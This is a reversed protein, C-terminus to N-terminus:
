QCMGGKTRAIKLRKVVETQGKDSALILAYDIFESPEWKATTLLKSAIEDKGKKIAYNFAPLRTNDTIKHSDLLARLITLDEGDVAYYLATAGERNRINVRINPQQLLLKVLNEQQSQCAKILATNGKEDVVNCDAGQELLFMVEEVFAEHNASVYFVGTKGQIYGRGAHYRSIVSALTDHIFVDKQAATMGQLFADSMQEQKSQNKEKNIGLFAEAMAEKRRQISDPDSIEKANQQLLAQVLLTIMAPSNIRLALNLPTDECLVDINIHPHQLLAQVISLNNLCMARTLATNYGRNVEIHPQQLLLKVLEEQQYDCARMLATEDCGTSTNCDAGHQLLLPVLVEFEEPSFHSITYFLAENVWIKKEQTTMKHLFANVMDDAMDDKKRWLMYLFVPVHTRDISSQSLLAKVTMVDDYEIALCLASTAQQKILHRDLQPHHLLKKVLPWCLTQIAYTLVNDGQKTMVNYNAGKEFLLNVLKDLREKNVSRGLEGGKKLLYLLATEGKENIQELDCGRTFLLQLLAGYEEHIAQDNTFFTECIFSEMVLFLLSPQQNLSPCGCGVPYYDGAEMYPVNAILPSQLLFFEYAPSNEKIPFYKAVYAPSNEKIPFYKAVLRLCRDLHVEALQDFFGWPFDNGFLQAVYQDADVYHVLELILRMLESTQLRDNRINIHLLLDWAMIYTQKVCEAVSYSEPALPYNKLQRWEPTDPKPIVIKFVQKKRAHGDTLFCNINAPGGVHNVLTERLVEININGMLKYALLHSQREYPQYVTDDLYIARLQRCTMGLTIPNETKWMIYALIETPLAM